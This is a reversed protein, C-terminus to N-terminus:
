ERRWKGERAGRPFTVPLTHQAATEGTVQVLRVPLGSSPHNGEDKKNVAASM